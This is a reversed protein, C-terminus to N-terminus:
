LNYFDEIKDTCNTDELGYNEYKTYNYLIGQENTGNRKQAEKVLTLVQPKINIYLELLEQYAEKAQEKAKDLEEQQEKTTPKRDYVPGNEENHRAKIGYIKSISEHMKIKADRYQSTIVFIHHHLRANDYNKFNATSAKVDHLIDAKRIVCESMRKNDENDASFSDSNIGKFVGFSGVIAIIVLLIAIGKINFLKKM